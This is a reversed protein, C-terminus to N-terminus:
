GNIEAELAKIKAQVKKGESIIQHLRNTSIKIQDTKLDILEAYPNLLNRLLIVLGSAEIMLENYKNKVEALQGRFITMENM